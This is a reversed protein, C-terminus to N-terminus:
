DTPLVPLPLWHTPEDVVQASYCDRWELERSNWYGVRPVNGNFILIPIGSKPATEIRHWM